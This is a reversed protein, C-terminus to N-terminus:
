FTRAALRGWFKVPSRQEGEAKRQRYASQLLQFFVYISHRGVLAVIEDLVERVGPKRELYGPGLSEVLALPDDFSTPDIDEPLVDLVRHIHDWLEPTVEFNLDEPKIPGEESSLQIKLM